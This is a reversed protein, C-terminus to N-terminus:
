GADREAPKIAEDADQLGDAPAPYHLINKAM